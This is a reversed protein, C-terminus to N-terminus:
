LRKCSHVFIAQSAQLSSSSLGSDLQHLDISKLDNDIDEITVGSGVLLYHAKTYPNVTDPGKNYKRSDYAKKKIQNLSLHITGIDNLRRPLNRSSELLEKLVASTSKGATSSNHVGNSSLTATKSM